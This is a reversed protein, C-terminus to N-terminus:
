LDTIVVRGDKITICFGRGLPPVNPHEAPDPEDPLKGSRERDRPREYYEDDMDVVFGSREGDDFKRM